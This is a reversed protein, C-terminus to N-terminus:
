KLLKVFKKCSSKSVMAYILDGASMKDKAGPVIAETEHVLGILVCEPPWEVENVEKGDVASGERVLMEIVDNDSYSRVVHFQDDTLFREIDRRTAERPSIAARIGLNRGVRSITRAYDSRHILTLCKKAGLHHAQLCSMVNDEDSESTAVFFDAEDIQEDKLEDMMTADAHIITSSQLQESLFQCRKEEEEFVRIKCGWAELMQALAFGYEGGGFIAIRLDKVVRETQIIRKSLDRLRKPEGFVTIIDRELIITEATPIFSEGKRGLLAVRTKDPFKAEQMTKGVLDSKPSVRLQQLEIKGSALEEVALADPNRIYKSLELASLKESSFLHDLGFHGRYDFLWEQSQLRPHMRCLVETAGMKKAMSCSVINVTNDNTLAIFLKCNEVHADILTSAKSGDGLIVKADVAQELELALTPNQEIVSISHQQKSLEQALYRGIEGAGVIIIDM